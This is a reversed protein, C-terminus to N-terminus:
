QLQKLELFSTPSPPDHSSQTKRSTVKSDEGLADITCHLYKLMQQRTIGTTTWYAEAGPGDPMEAYEKPTPEQWLGHAILAEMMNKQYFKGLGTPLSVQRKFSEARPM